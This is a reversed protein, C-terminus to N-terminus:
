PANGNQMHGKIVLEFENNLRLAKKEDPLLIYSKLTHAGPGLASKHFAVHWGSQLLQKNNFHEAVDTRKDAVRSYALINTKQDATIVWQGPEDTTPNRAWGGCQVYDADLHIDDTYGAIAAPQDIFVIQLITKMQSLPIKELNLTGIQAIRSGDQFLAYVDIASKGLPLKESQLALKWGASTADGRAIILRNSNVLLVARASKRRDPDCARGSIQFAGAPFVKNSILDGQFSEIHGAQVDVLRYDAFAKKERFVSLKHQILFNTWEEPIPAPFSRALLAGDPLFSLLENRISSRLIYYQKWAEIAYCSSIIFSVLCLGAFLFLGAKLSLFMRQAMTARRPSPRCLRMQKRTSNLGCEATQSHLSLQLEYYALVVTSIVLTAIWFLGSFATYRSAFANHIGHESRGLAAALASILAYAGISLWPAASKLLRGSMYFCVLLGSLFIVLGILGAAIPISVPVNPINVIASGLFSFLYGAFAAPNDLFFSFRGSFGPKEYGIFYLTLVAASFMIWIIYPSIRRIRQEHASMFLTLLGIIWYLVGNAYSYTAITGALLSGVFRIWSFSPQSLLFLGIIASFINIYITLSYGFSWNEWQLVSFILVSLFVPLWVNKKGYCIISTRISQHATLLFTLVAILVSGGIEYNTNWGTLRALPIIILRLFFLRSENHQDFLDRITLTGAYSKELYPVLAWEDWFPMDVVFQTIWYLLFAFPSIILFLILFNKAVTRSM